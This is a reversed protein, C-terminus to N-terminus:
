ETLPGPVFSFNVVGMNSCLLLVCSDVYLSFVCNLNLNVTFIKTNDITHEDRLSTPMSANLASLISGTQTSRNEQTSNKLFVDKAYM